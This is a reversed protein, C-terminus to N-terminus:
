YEKDETIKWFGIGDNKYQDLSFNIEVEPYKKIVDDWLKKWDMTERNVRTMKIGGGCCNSDDTFDCLKEKLEKELKAYHDKQKKAEIWEQALEFFRDETIPFYDNESYEPEEMESVCRYFEAVKPLIMAIYDPDFLVEVIQYDDDFFSVYYSKELNAVFLQWQLQPYYHKPIKGSKATEHDERGPCKIELVCGGDFERDIGDLSAAAWHIESHNLVEPMFRADKEFNFWDRVIPELDRGRKMAWNDKSDSSFGVKNKWLEHPTSWKSEGLIIAIESATIKSKRWKKWEDSGQEFNIVLSDQNQPIFM